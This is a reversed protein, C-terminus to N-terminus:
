CVIHLMDVLPHQGGDECKAAQSCLCLLSTLHDVRLGFPRLRAIDEHVRRSLFEEVTDDVGRCSEKLVVEVDVLGSLLMPAIDGHELGVANAHM